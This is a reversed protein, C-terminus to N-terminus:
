LDLIAVAMRPKYHIVVRWICTELISDRFDSASRAVERGCLSGLIFRSFRSFRVSFFYKRLRLRLVLVGAWVDLIIWIIALTVPVHRVGWPIFHTSIERAKSSHETLVTDGRM